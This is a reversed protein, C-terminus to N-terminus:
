RGVIVPCGCLPCVASLPSPISPDAALKAHLDSVLWAHDTQVSCHNAYALGLPSKPSLTQMEWAKAPRAAALTAGGLIWTAASRLLRRRDQIVNSMGFDEEGGDRPEQAVGDREALMTSEMKRLWQMM